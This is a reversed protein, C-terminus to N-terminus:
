RCLSGAPAVMKSKKIRLILLKLVARATERSTTSKAGCKKAIAKGLGGLILSLHRFAM